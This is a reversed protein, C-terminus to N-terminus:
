CHQRSPSAALKFLKSASHQVDVGGGPVTKRTRLITLPVENLLYSLDLFCPLHQDHIIPTDIDLEFGASVFRLSTGNNGRAMARIVMALKIHFDESITESVTGHDYHRLLIERTTKFHV